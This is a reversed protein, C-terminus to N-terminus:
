GTENVREVKVNSVLHLDRQPFPIGIGAENLAAYLASNMKDIIRRTEVYNAIWCRVRFILASDGFELFLAEIREEKMVWDQQRIAAIMIERAEEVDVGYAVGVHTEVRYRNEPISYNVILGQGIVANPVTVTRNDRTLIRTSRLGIEQVDGWTNIDLIEVRDGVAFPQDVMISLGAFMNGLTDQAALAVALSAIGLSAILASVEIGFRDLIMIIVVVTLGLLALRRVLDLFKDDLDTETRHAVERGYWMVVGSVLRYLFIFALLAYAVFFIHSLTEDWSDPVFSLQGLALEIAFVLIVSRLPFMAAKLIVDDLTSTTRRSFRILIRKLIGGVILSLVVAGALILAAIAVEIVLSDVAVEEM